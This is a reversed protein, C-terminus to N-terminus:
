LKGSKNDNHTVYKDAHCAKKESFISKGPLYNTLTSM